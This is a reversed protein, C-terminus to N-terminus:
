TNKKKLASVFVPIVILTLMTSVFLGSMLAIALPKFLQSTGIVLPILGIITTTTSLFIPRLRRTAANLCAKKRKIGKKLEGNIYDILIIANNVVIGLLSIIGLLATFSIPQKTIYLGIISGIASLPITVFIILPQIYSKFQILLILFVIILAVIGLIAMQGFNEEITKAEGDYLIDCDTIDLADVKEEINKLTEAKDYELDYDAAAKLSYRGNYKMITSLMEVEKIDIISSMDIYQDMTASKIKMKKIDQITEINSTVIIDNELTGKRMKGSSRGLTAISIENQVEVMNIGHQAIKQNDIEIKYEKIYNANSKGVNSLGETEILADY